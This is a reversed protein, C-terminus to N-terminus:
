LRRYEEKGATRKSSIEEIGNSRLGENEAYL